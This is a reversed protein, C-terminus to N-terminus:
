VAICCKNNFIQLKLITDVKTSANYILSKGCNYLYLLNLVNWFNENLWPMHPLHGAQSLSLMHQMCFHFLASKWPYSSWIGGLELLGGDGAQGRGGFVCVLVRRKILVGGAWWAFAGSLQCCSCQHACHKPWPLEAPSVGWKVSTQGRAHSDDERFAARDM